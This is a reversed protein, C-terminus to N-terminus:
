FFDLSFNVGFHLLKNMLQETLFITIHLTLALCFNAELLFYKYNKEPMEILCGNCCFAKPYKQKANSKHNM